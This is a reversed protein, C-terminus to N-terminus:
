YQDGKELYEGKTDDPVIVYGKNLKQKIIQNAKELAIETSPYKKFSPMLGFKGITSIHNSEGKNEIEIVKGASNKLGIKKNASLVESM